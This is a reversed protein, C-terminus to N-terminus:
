NILNELREVSFSNEHYDGMWRMCRNANLPIGIVPIGNKMCKRMGNILEPICAIGLVGISKYKQMLQKFPNRRSLEMWIYPNINNERLVKSAFNIFCDKSCGKCVMDIGDSQAKCNKNLDKLCHPLLAIKYNARKFDEKNLRNTIEYELMYYYYNKEKTRLTKDFFDMLSLEKLHQEVGKTYINLQNFLETGSDISYQIFFKKISHLISKHFEAPHNKKNTPYYDFFTDVLNKIISYYKETNDSNGFLSYTKGMVPIYVPEHKMM